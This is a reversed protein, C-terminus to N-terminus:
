SILLESKSIRALNIVADLIWIIVINFAHSFIKDTDDNTVWKHYLKYANDKEDRHGM